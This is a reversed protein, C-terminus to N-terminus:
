TSEFHKRKIQQLIQMIIFYNRLVRTSLFLVFLIVLSCEDLAINLKYNSRFQLM